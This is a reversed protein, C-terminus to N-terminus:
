SPGPLHFRTGHCLKVEETRAQMRGWFLKAMSKIASKKDGFRRRQQPHVIMEVGHLRLGGRLVRGLAEGGDVEEAAEGDDDHGDVVDPVVEHGVGGRVGHGVGVDGGAEEGGTPDGVEARGNEDEEGTGTGAQNGGSLVGSFKGAEKKGTADPEDEHFHHDDGSGPRERWLAQLLDSAEDGDAQLNDPSDTDGHDNERAGLPQPAIGAGGEPCCDDDTVVQEIGNPGGTIKEILLPGEPDGQMGRPRHM